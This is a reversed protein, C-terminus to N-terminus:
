TPWNRKNIFAGSKFCTWRKIHPVPAWTMRRDPDEVAKRQTTEFPWYEISKNINVYFEM